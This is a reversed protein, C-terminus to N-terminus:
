CVLLCMGPLASCHDIPFTPPARIALGALRLRREGYPNAQEVLLV